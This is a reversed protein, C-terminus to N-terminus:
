KVVRILRWKTCVTLGMLFKWDRIWAADKSHRQYPRLRPTLRLSSVKQEDRAKKVRAAERAHTNRAELSQTM